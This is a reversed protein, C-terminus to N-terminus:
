NSLLTATCGVTGTVAVSTGALFLSVNDLVLHQSSNAPVAVTYGDTLTLTGGYGIPGNVTSAANGLLKISISSGTTNTLTLAMSAGATYALTDTGTLTTSAVAFPGVVRQSIAIVAM